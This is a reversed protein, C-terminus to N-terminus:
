KSHDIQLYVLGAIMQFAQICSHFIELCWVHGSSTLINLKRTACNFSEIGSIDFDSMPYLVRMKKKPKLTVM